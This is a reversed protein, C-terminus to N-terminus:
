IRQATLGANTFNSSGTVVNGFDRDDRYRFYLSECSYWARSPGRNRNQRGSYFSYIAINFRGNAPKGPCKWIWGSRKPINVMFKRMLPWSKLCFAVHLRLQTWWLNKLKLVSSFACKKRRQRACRVVIWVRQKQFIGGSRWFLSNNSAHKLASWCPIITKMPSFSPIQGWLMWGVGFIAYSFM